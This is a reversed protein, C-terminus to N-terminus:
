LLQCRRSVNSMPLKGNLWPGKGFLRASTNTTAQLDLLKIRMMMMAARFEGSCLALTTNM